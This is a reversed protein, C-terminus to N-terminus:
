AAKRRQRHPIALSLWTVEMDTLDDTTSLVAIGRQTLRTMLDSGVLTYEPVLLTSFSVIKNDILVAKVGEPGWALSHSLSPGNVFGLWDLDHEWCFHELRVAHRLRPPHGLWGICSKVSKM